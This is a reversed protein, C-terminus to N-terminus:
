EAGNRRVFMSLEPDLARAADLATELNVEKKLVQHFLMHLFLPIDSGLPQGKPAIYVAVGGSLFADCMPDSGSDCATSIVIKGPLNVRGSIARPPLSGDILMSTDIEPIYEGFVYGNDDGHGNIILYEPETAGQGLVTLFDKPTGPSHLTVVAHLSELIDRTLHAEGSDGLAVVAIPTRPFYFKKDVIMPM